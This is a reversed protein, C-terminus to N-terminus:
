QKVSEIVKIMDNVYQHCLSDSRAEVMVRVLPETGSPRVLIRGEDGLADSIRVIADNVTFDSMISDKSAVRINQLVQPFRQCPAALDELSADEKAITEALLLATMVGDGTTAHEKLIIHGSQEGGLAFDHKDMEAYVYKDGVQTTMVHLGAARAAHMFGLNAMVTAVITNDKLKNEKKLRKGLIYLIMDGDILDGKGDVALCRDADGDFAFGFDAQMAIVKEQLLEPHTSGCDVNINLGNPEHHLMIVEAGLDKFVKEASSVASGNACDLVIRYGRFDHTVLKELYDLYHKMGEAYDYVRGIADAHAAEIEIEGELYAEIEAELADSIKMGEASFCKLGNDYYPNHSASIMVGGAFGQHIVTYALAPTACVGLMYVDAGTSVAGAAIASAFMSASLRTDQGVVLRSGKNKYGLYQGVKLAIDLTLDENAVGRIGDTGFYKGM